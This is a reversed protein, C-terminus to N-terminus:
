KVIEYKKTEKVIRYNWSQFGKKMNSVATELESKRAKASKLFKADYKDIDYWDDGKFSNQLHYTVEEKMDKYNESIMSENVGANEEMKKLRTYYDTIESLHDLAIREAIVPSNTHEYEVSIGMKLEKPDADEVTFGKDYSRGARLFDDVFNIDGDSENITEFENSLFSSFRSETLGAHKKLKNKLIKMATGYYRESDTKKDYEKDVIAKAEEWYSEIESESKGTKKAFSKIAALPM